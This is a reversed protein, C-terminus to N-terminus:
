AGYSLVTGSRPAAATYELRPARRPARAGRALLPRGLSVQVATADQPHRPWAPKPGAPRHLHVHVLSDKAETEHCGRAGKGRARVGRGRTAGVRLRGITGTPLVRARRPAIGVELAHPRDDVQDARRELAGDILLAIRDVAIAFLERVFFVSHRLLTQLRAVITVLFLDLAVLHAHAMPGLRAVAAVRGAQCRQEDLRLVASEGLQRIVALIERSLHAAA